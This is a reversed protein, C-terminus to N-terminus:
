SNPHPRLSDRLAILARRGEDIQEGRLWDEFRRYWELKDVDLYRRPGDPFMPDLTEVDRLLERFDAPLSSAYLMDSVPHDGPRGNPM